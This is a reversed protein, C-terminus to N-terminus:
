KSDRKAQTRKGRAAVHGQIRSKLRTNEIKQNKIKGQRDAAESKTSPNKPNRKMPASRLPEGAIRCRYIVQVALIEASLDGLSIRASQPNGTSIGGICFGENV